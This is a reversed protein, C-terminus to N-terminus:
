LPTQDPWTMRPLDRWAEQADKSLTCLVLDIQDLDEMQGPIVLQHSFGIGNGQPCSNDHYKCLMIM